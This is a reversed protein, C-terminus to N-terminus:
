AWWTSNFQRIQNKFINKAPTASIRSLARRWKKVTRGWTTMWNILFPAYLFRRKPQPDPNGSTKKWVLFGL